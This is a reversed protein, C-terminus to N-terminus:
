TTTAARRRARCAGWPRPPPTASRPVDLDDLMAADAAADSSGERRSGDGVITLALTGRPDIPLLVPKDGGTDSYAFGYADTLKDLISAYQHFATFAPAQARAAAFAPKDWGHPCFGAPEPRACWGITDNGYRGGWYGWAFGAVLDRYIASSVDNPDPPRRAGGATYPGAGAYIADPLSSGAVVVPQGAAPAGGQPTVTGTLTISGDAAFTGTYAYTSFPVGYYGGKITIKQGAMSAVYRQLSPYTRPPSLQPSLVRATGGGSAASAPVTAAKVGPIALLANMITATAPMDRVGLSAGAASRSHLKFPIGFFDVATLNAVANGTTTLEVKDYRIPAQPPEANTIRAGYSVYLRGSFDGVTFSTGVASLAVGVNNPLKGDTSSGGSLMLYVGKAARGSQNDVTITMAAAPAVCLLTAAAAALATRLV